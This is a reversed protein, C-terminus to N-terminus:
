EWYKNTIVQSRGKFIAFKPQRSWNDAFYKSIMSFYNEEQLIMSAKEGRSRMVFSFKKKSDEFIAPSSFTKNDRTVPNHGLSCLSM